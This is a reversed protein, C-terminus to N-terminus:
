IASLDYVSRVTYVLICKNKNLRSHTLGTNYMAKCTHTHPQQTEEQVDKSHGTTCSLKRVKNSLEKQSVM